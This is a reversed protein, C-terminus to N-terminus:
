SRKRDDHNRLNEENKILNKIDPMTVMTTGLLNSSSVEAMDLRREGLQALRSFLSVGVGEFGMVRLLEEANCQQLHGVEM